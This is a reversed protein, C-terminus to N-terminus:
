IALGGGRPNLRPLPGPAIKYEGRTVDGVYWFALGHSVRLLEDVMLVRLMFDLRDFKELQDHRWPYSVSRVLELNTKVYDAIRELKKELDEKGLTLENDLRSTDYGLLGLVELGVLQRLLDAADAEEASAIRKTLESIRDKPSVECNEDLNPLAAEWRQRWDPFVFDPAIGEPHTKELERPTTM